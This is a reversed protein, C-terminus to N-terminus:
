GILSRSRLFSTLGRQDMFGVRHVVSEGQYMIFTTPTAGTNLISYVTENLDVNEWEDINVYYIHIRREISIERVVLDYRVCAPCSPRGIYVIYSHEGEMLEKFKEVDTEIMRGSTLKELPAIESPPEEEDDKNNVNPKDEEASTSKEEEEVPESNDLFWFFLFVSLALVVITGFVYYSRDKKEEMNFRRVKDLYIIVDNFL